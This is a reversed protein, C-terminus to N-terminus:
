VRERAPPNDAGDVVERAGIVDATYSAHEARSTVTNKNGYEQM